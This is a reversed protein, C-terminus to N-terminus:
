VYVGNDMLEIQELKCTTAMADLKENTKDLVDQWSNAAVYFYYEIPKGLSAYSYTIKWLEYRDLKTSTNM